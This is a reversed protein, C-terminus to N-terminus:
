FNEMRRKNLASKKLTEQMKSVFDEEYDEPNVEELERVGNIVRNWENFIREAIDKQENGISYIFEIDLEAKNIGNFLTQPSVNKLLKVIKGGYSGLQNYVASLYNEKYQILKLNKYSKSNQQRLGQLKMKMEQESKPTTKSKRLNESGIMHSLGSEPTLQKRMRTKRTEDVRKAIEFEKKIHKTTYYGSNTKNDTVIKVVEEAGKKMFRKLVNLEKRLESRTWQENVARNLLNQVNAKDPLLQQMESPTKRGVRTLKSNFARVTNSIEKRIKDNYRFNFGQLM